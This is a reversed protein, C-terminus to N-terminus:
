KYIYRVVQPKLENWLSLFQNLFQAETVTADLKQKKKLM